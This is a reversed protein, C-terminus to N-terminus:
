FVVPRCVRQSLRHGIRYLSDSASILGFTIGFTLGMYACYQFADKLAPYSPEIVQNAIYHTGSVGAVVCSFVSALGITHAFADGVNQVRINHQEIKFEADTM